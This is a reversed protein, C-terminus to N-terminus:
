WKYLYGVSYKTSLGSQVGFTFSSRSNINYGVSLSPRVSQLDLGSIPTSVRFTFRSDPTTYTADFLGKGTLDVQYQVYFQKSLYTGVTFKADLNGDPTILNSSIRFVDVGLARAINRQLEGLVFVNLATSIASQGLSGINSGLTTIDPTGLALLSYLEAQSYEGSSSCTTCSLQTDLKLARVGSLVVFSGDAQLQVGILKGGQDAVRGQATLSFVPYLSSGDFTAQAQQLNFNNERLLLNGRLSRVVGSLRPSAGSGSLTLAASLEAQALTEDVRVGNPALVPIDQLVIRQLFPSLPKEGTESPFVTLEDPLPSVYNSVADSSTATSATGPLSSANLRGLM